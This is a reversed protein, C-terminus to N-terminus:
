LMSASVVLGVFVNNYFIDINAVGGEIKINCVQMLLSGYALCLFLIMFYSLKGAMFNAIVMGTIFIFYCFGIYLKPNRKELFIATSKIGVKKDDVIDAFAYITDYGITWFICAIYAIIIQITIQEAINFHAVLIGINWVFGLCIQPFYTFRKLSPYLVVLVISSLAVFISKVRLQLLIFLGVFLLIFLIIIADINSLDGSALPRDKTREVQRDLNQDWIDNIICGASRMIVSGFFFLAVLFWDIIGNSSLLIGFFCPFFLMFIPLPKHLRMLEVVPM